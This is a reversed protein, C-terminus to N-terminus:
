AWYGVPLLGQLELLVPTETTQVRVDILYQCGIVGAKVPVLVMTETSDFGAPGNLINMPNADTGFNTTVTLGVVDSLTVGAGLGRSFNFGLVVSEGPPKNRFIGLGEGWWIIFTPTVVIPGPPESASGLFLISDAPDTVAVFGTPTFAGIAQIADPPETVLSFATTALAALASIADSPEIVAVVGVDGLVARAAIADRLEHPTGSLYAVSSAVAVIRDSREGVVATGTIGIAASAAIADAASLANVIGSTLLHATAALADAPGTVSVFGAAVPPGAYTTDRLRTAFQYATDPSIGPGRHRRRGITISLSATASVADPPSTVRAYSALAALASIADPPSTLTVSSSALLSGGFYGNAFYGNAFYSDALYPASLPFYGPAFYGPAVYGNAFYQAV